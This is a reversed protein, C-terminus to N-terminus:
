SAMIVPPQLMQYRYCGVLHDNVMGASQMFAYCTTSGVFKFGAAKLAKTMKDSARTNAPVDKQAQWANQQPIGNVFQWLFDAFSTHKKLALFAKANNIIAEIKKQHRIIQKNQVLQQVDAETFCAIKEPNFGCFAERFGERKKLITLWNLGAQMGELMLLEFLRKDDYLPVGWENDHYALYLPDKTCWTCRKKNQPMENMADKYWM